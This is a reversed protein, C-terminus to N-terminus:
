HSVQNVHWFLAGLITAKPYEALGSRLIDGGLRVLNHYRTRKWAECFLAQIEKIPEDEEMFTKSNFAKEGARYFTHEIGNDQEIKQIITQCIQLAQESDLYNKDALALGTKEFSLGLLFKRHGDKHRL